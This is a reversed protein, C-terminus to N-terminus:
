HREVGSLDVPKKLTPFRSEKSIERKFDMWIVIKETGPKYKSQEDEEVHVDCISQQILQKNHPM